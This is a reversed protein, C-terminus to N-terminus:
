YKYGCKSCVDGNESSVRDHTETKYGGCITCRGSHTTNNIEQWSTIEHYAINTKGCVTCNRSHQNNNVRAWSGYSHNATNIASCVSCIRKHTQGESEQYTSWTHAATQLRNCLSCTRGHMNTDINYFGSWSHNTTQKAGCGSCTRVHTNDDSSTYDSWTHELINAYSCESCIQKHTNSNAYIFEGYNHNTIVKAKCLLCEKQHQTNNISSGVGFTHSANETAGCGSCIRTHTNDDIKIYNEWTHNATETLGCSCSRKHQTSNLNTWEGMNHTHPPTPINVANVLIESTNGLTDYMIVKAQYSGSQNQHDSIEIRSYWNGDDQYTMQKRVLDDTGGSTTWVEIEVKEVGAIDTVNYINIDYGATTINNTEYNDYTPGQTDINTVPVVISAREGTNKVTSIFEYEGNETVKYYEEAKKTGDEYTRGTNNPYIVNELGNTIEEIILHITAEKTPEAPEIIYDFNITTEIITYDEPLRYYITGELEVGDPFYITHTGENIIYTGASSTLSLNEIANLDITYYNGYDNPNLVNTPIKSIQTYENKIPLKGYKQYYINVQESLIRLNNYMNDLKQNNSQNVVYFTITSLIILMVIIAIGMTLLTVGQQKAM